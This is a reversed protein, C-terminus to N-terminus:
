PQVQLAKRATEGFDTSNVGWPGGSPEKHGLDAYYELAERWQKLRDALQHAEAVTIFAAYKAPDGNAKASRLRQELDDSM